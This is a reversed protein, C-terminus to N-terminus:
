FLKSFHGKIHRVGGGGWGGGEGRPASDVFARKSTGSTHYRSLSGDRWGLEPQSQQSASPFFVRQHPRVRARGNGDGEPPEDVGAATSSWRLWASLSCVQSLSFGCAMLIIIIIVVVEAAMNGDQSLCTPFVRQSILTWVCRQLILFVCLDFCTWIYLYQQESHFRGGTWM